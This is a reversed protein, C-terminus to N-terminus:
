FSCEIQRIETPACRPCECGVAGGALGWLLSCAMEGTAEEIIEFAGVDEHEDLWEGVEDASLDTRALSEPMAGLDDAAPRIAYTAANM